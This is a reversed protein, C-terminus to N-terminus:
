TPSSPNSRDATRTAQPTSYSWACVNRRPSGGVPLTHNGAAHLEDLSREADPKVPAVTTVPLQDTM